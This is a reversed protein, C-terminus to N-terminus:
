RQASPESRLDDAADLLERQWHQLARRADAGLHEELERGLEGLGQAVMEIRTLPNLPPLTGAYAPLSRAHTREPVRKRCPGKRIGNGLGMLLGYVLGGILVLGFGM